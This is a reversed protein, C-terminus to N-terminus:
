AADLFADARAKRFFPEGLARQVAAEADNGSAHLATAARVHAYAAAAPHGIGDIIAAARGIDGNCIAKSAEVWPCAIPTADLITERLENGRGLDRFLWAVDTLNPFPSCLAPVVVTGIGLLKSALEEAEIRNGSDLAIAARVCYASSQAQADSSAALSAARTSDRESGITDGRARRIWARTALMLPDSYDASGEAAEEILENAIALAEDWRGDLLAWSAAEGLSSRRARALGHRETTDMRQQFATRAEAIRAYFLLESSLNGYGLIMQTVAGAADAIAIGSEIETFGEVEGLCCRACGVQIHIKARQDDLELEEALTLADSGIEISEAFRGALMLFGCQSALALARARSAPADRVVELAVSMYRDTEARDGEDWAFHALTTAAEAQGEADGARRFADLAEAALDSRRAGGLVAQSRASELLLHPRDRDAASSLALARAFFEAAAGFASLSTAREGAARLARRTQQALEPDDEIGAARTLELAQEYHHALLDAHDDPRGLEELWGGARRHKQARERRPIQGYAVDRLLAHRFSYQTDGAVTSARERRVFDKRELARVYRDAESAAMGSAAAVGGIWFVKGHVAAEQVLRKEAQPLADLRSAILAQVSEPVEATTGREGLMRAYQEAFLPNGGARELLARQDEALRLPQELLGALLRVVEEETLPQLSITSANAKGGGWSPRRELLEPRATGVILAPVTRLWDVLDDVFDLLGDDAWHLDEFVLVVVRREALAELFRRWAAAASEGSSRQGGSTSLGVLARLEAAVWRAEGPDPVLREVANTLKTEAAARADTELIGAEAKVIEGLAWFTVSEGYPLCRGQRWVVLEENGDVVEALEAVLRSKGIGPVGVLTVLQASREERVRQLLARLLELERGRGVLTTAHQAVVDVGLRAVPEVAIWVPIPDTKGKAQVPECDRYRIADRTARYTVEGVLVGGVPAAAQMRAATNVVDGAVLSEGESARADLSVVAEGTHVAIRVQMDPQEAIWDRIALAARVAREPDDEHATPAGFVAMVADGIFKEVTGGYRELESRLRTHYPALLGRVDEPDMAEARATFGVLDCFLVTVVKREEQVPASPQETLLAGCFPCFPFEGPLEKGCSPCTPM